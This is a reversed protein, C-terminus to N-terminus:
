PSRESREPSTGVRQGYAHELYELIRKSDHIVEDGDVLVPVRDQRTLEVIEPRDARRYPIRETRHEIGLKRLRREVAGCPCLFNTPTRCRYLVVAGAGPEGGSM